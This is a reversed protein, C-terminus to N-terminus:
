YRPLAMLNDTYIGDRVTQVYKNGASSVRAAVYAVNGRADRDYAVGGGKVWDHWAARTDEVNGGTSDNVGRLRAIHEHHTGPYVVHIATFRVAV